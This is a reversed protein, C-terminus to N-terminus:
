HSPGNAMSEVRLRNMVWRAPVAVISRRPYDLVVCTWPKPITARAAVVAAFPRSAGMEGAALVNVGATNALHNALTHHFAFDARCLPSSVAISFQATVMSHPSRTERWQPLAAFQIASTFAREFLSTAQRLDAPKILKNPQRDAAKDALQQQIAANRTLLSPSELQRFCIVVPILPRSVL